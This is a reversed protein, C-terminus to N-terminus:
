YPNGLKDRALKHLNSGINTLLALFSGKSHLMTLYAGVM